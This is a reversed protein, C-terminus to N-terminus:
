DTYIVSELHNSTGSTRSTWTIGDTSTIMVGDNGTVVFTNNGYAVGMLDKPSGSTRKTWTTGDPSTHIKGKTGYTM